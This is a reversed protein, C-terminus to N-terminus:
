EERWEEFEVELHRKLEVFRNGFNTGCRWCKMDVRLWGGRDPKRRPDDSKLPFEELRVFFPTAFSNYHKRHKLCESHRDKSIIHVHLHNMSPGAHVGAMIEDEWDRGEPLRDKECVEDKEMAALRASEKSSWKGHLRRLESAALKKM